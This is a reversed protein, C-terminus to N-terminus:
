KAVSLQRQAIKKLADAAYQVEDETTWPGFSLRCTGVPHTGITEHAYPACHVGPRTCIGFESELVDALEGPALGDVNTSFV